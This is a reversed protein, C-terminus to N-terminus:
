GIRYNSKTIQSPKLRFAQIFGFKATNSYQSLQISHRDILIHAKTDSTSKFVQQLFTPFTTDDRKHQM